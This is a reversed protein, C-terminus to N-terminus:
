YLEPFRREVLEEAWAGIEAARDEDIDETWYPVEDPWEKYVRRVTAIVQDRTRDGMTEDGSHLYEFSLANAFDQGGLRHTVQINVRKVGDNSRTVRM